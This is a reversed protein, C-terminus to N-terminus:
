WKCEEGDQGFVKGTPGDDEFATAVHIISRVAVEVNHDHHLHYNHHLLESPKLRLACANVKIKSGHLDKALLLTLMNLAAKSTCFASHFYSEKTTTEHFHFSGFVSSVNVICASPSQRLLPLFAKILSFAGFFNVEFNQRLIDLSLESPRSEKLYVSSNNILIDLRGYQKTVEEVAKDITLQNTVDIQILSVPFNESILQEVAKKGREEDRSGLLVKIGKQSLQRAVEFGIGKNAGTILAIKMDNNNDM